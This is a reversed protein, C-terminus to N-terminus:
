EHHAGARPLFLIKFEEREQADLAGTLILHNYVQQPDGALAETLREAIDMYCSFRADVLRNFFAPFLSVLFGYFRNDVCLAAHVEVRVRDDDVRSYRACLLARGSLHVFFSGYYQGTIHYCRVGRPRPLETFDAEISRGEKVGYEGTGKEVVHFDGLGMGRVIDATLVPHDFLRDMLDPTGAFERAPIERSLLACSLVARVAEEQSSSSLKGAASTETFPTAALIAAILLNWM